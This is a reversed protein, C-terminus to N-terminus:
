VPAEALIGLRQVGGGCGAHAHPFGRRANNADYFFGQIIFDCVHSYRSCLSLLGLSNFSCLTSLYLLLFKGDKNTPSIFKQGISSGAAARNQLKM